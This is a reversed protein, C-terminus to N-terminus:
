CINVDICIKCSTLAVLGLRDRTRSSYFLITARTWRINTYRQINDDDVIYYDKIEELLQGIDDFINLANDYFIDTHPKAFQMTDRIHQKAFISQVYEVVVALQQFFYFVVVIHTVVVYLQVCFENSLFL